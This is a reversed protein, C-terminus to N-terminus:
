SFSSFPDAYLTEPNQMEKAVSEFAKNLEEETAVAAQTKGEGIPTEYDYWHPFLEHYLAVLDATNLNALEMCTAQNGIITLVIRHTRTESHGSEVAKRGHQAPLTIQACWAPQNSGKALIENLTRTRYYPLKIKQEPVTETGSFFMWKKVTIEHAPIVGEKQIEQFFPYVFVSPAKRPCLKSLASSYPLSNIKELLRADYERLNHAEIINYNMASLIPKIPIRGKTAADDWPQKWVYDVTGYLIYGATSLIRGAIAKVSTM